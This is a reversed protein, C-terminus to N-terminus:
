KAAVRSLSTPAQIEELFLHDLLVSPHEHVVVRQKQKADMFGEAVVHDMFRLLSSFYHQTNLLGIAGQHMGMKIENWCEFFEDLTGVGGPM